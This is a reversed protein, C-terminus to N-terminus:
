KITVLQKDLMHKPSDTQYELIYIIIINNRCSTNEKKTPDSVIQKM